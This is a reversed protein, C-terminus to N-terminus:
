KPATDRFAVAACAAAPLTPAASWSRVPPPPPLLCPVRDPPPRLSLSRPAGPVRPQPPLGGAHLAAPLGGVPSGGAAAAPRHRFTPASQRAWRRHEAHQASHGILDPPPANEAPIRRQKTAVCPAVAAAATRKYGRGALHKYGPAEPRKYGPRVTNPVDPVRSHREPDRRTTHAAFADARVRDAAAAHAAPISRAGGGGGLISHAGRAVHPLQTVPAATPHTAAVPAGTVDRRGQMFSTAAPQAPTSRTFDVAVSPTHKVPAAASQSPVRRAGAQHSAAMRPPERLLAAAPSPCLTPVAHAYVAARMTQPGPSAAPVSPMSHAAEVGGPLRQVPAANEKSADERQAKEKVAEAPAAAPSVPRSLQAGPDAQPLAPAYRRVAAAPSAVPIAGHDHTSHKRQTAAEFLREATIGPGSLSAGAAVLSAVAAAAMDVTLWPIRCPPPRRRPDRSPAPDQPAPAVEPPNCLTAAPLREGRFDQISAELSVVGKGRPTPAAAAALRTIVPCKQQAACLASALPADGKGSAAPTPSDSAGASADACTAQGRTDAPRLVDRAAAAPVATAAGAAASGVSAASGAGAPRCVAAAVAARHRVDDTICAPRCVAAAVCAPGADAAGRLEVGHMPATPCASTGVPAVIQDLLQTSPWHCATSGQEAAGASGSPCPSGSFSGSSFARQQLCYGMAAAPDGAPVLAPADASCAHATSGEGAVAQSVTPCPYGVGLWPRNEQDDNMVSPAAATVHTQAKTARGGDICGGYAPNGQSGIPCLPSSSIHIRHLADGSVSTSSHAGLAGQNVNPCLPELHLRLSAHGMDATAGAPPAAAPECAVPDHSSYVDATSCGAEGASPGPLGVDVWSTGAMEGGIAASYARGHIAAAAAAHAAVHSIGRGADAGGAPACRDVAPGLQLPTMDSWCSQARGGAAAAHAAAASACAAPDCPCTGAAGRDGQQLSQPCAPMVDCWRPIFGRGPVDPPAAACALAAPDSMCRAPASRGAAAAQGDDASLPKLDFERQRTQQGLGLGPDTLHLAGSVARPLAPEQARYGRSQQGMRRAGAHSPCAIGMLLDPPPKYLAAPRKCDGPPPPQTSCRLVAGGPPEDMAGSELRFDHRASISPPAEQAAASASMAVDPPLITAATSMCHRPAQWTSESPHQHELSRGPFVPVPSPPAPPLWLELAHPRLSDRSHQERSMGQESGDEEELGCWQPYLVSDSTNGEELGLFSWISPVRGRIVALNQLSYADDQFWVTQKKRHRRESVLQVPPSSTGALIERNSTMVHSIIDHWLNPLSHEPLGLKWQLYLITYSKAATAARCANKVTKVQHVTLDRGVAADNVGDTLILHAMAPTLNPAVAGSHDRLKALEYQQWTSKTIFADAHCAICMVPFKLAGDILPLTRWLYTTANEVIADRAFNSTAQASARLGRSGPRPRPGHQRRRAM